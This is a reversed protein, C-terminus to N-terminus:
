LLEAAVRANVLERRRLTHRTSSLTEGDLCLAEDVLRCLAAEDADTLDLCPLGAETCFASVKPDYSVGAAPTANQLAFILGHLRMSLILSMNGVRRANYSVTCPVNMEALADELSRAAIKDEPAFCILATPLRYNEWAHRAAAAFDPVHGWFDLWPRVILGLKQERDGAPPDLQLAPDAALLLRPNTVAMNNLTELSHEDRLTIADVYSNLVKRTFSRSFDRLFPGIGCGYLQVACGMKKALCITFLYYWLSRQSTVDQLLSGGGSLFLKARRLAFLWRFLNLPHIAKVGFRRATRKPKRALVTIPIDQELRRLDRCIAALVADDGANEMGYAGCIIVGKKTKPSLLSM